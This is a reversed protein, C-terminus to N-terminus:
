LWMYMHLFPPTLTANKLGFTILSFVMKKEKYRGWVSPGAIQRIFIWSVEHSMFAPVTSASLGPMDEQ